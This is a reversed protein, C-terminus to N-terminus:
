HERCFYSIIFIASFVGSQSGRASVTIILTIIIICFAHMAINIIHRAYNGTVKLMFKHFM